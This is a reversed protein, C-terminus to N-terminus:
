DGAEMLFLVTMGVGDTKKDQVRYTVGEHEITDRQRGGKFLDIARVEIKPGTSSIHAGSQAQYEHGPWRNPDFTAGAADWLGRITTPPEGSRPSYVVEVGFEDGLYNLRDEDSEASAM